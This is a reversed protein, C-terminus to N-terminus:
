ALGWRSSRSLKTWIAVLGIISCLRLLVTGVQMMWLALSPVVFRVFSVGGDGFSRYRMYLVAAFGMIGLSFASVFANDLLSSLLGVPQYWRRRRWFPVLAILRYVRNSLADKLPLYGYVLSSVLAVSAIVALSVSSIFLPHKLIDLHHLKLTKYNYKCSDCRWYSNSNQSM